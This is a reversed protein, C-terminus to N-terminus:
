AARHQPAPQLLAWSPDARACCARAPLTCMSCLGGLSVPYVNEGGRIVMDKMRGVISLYGQADLVALDGTHM